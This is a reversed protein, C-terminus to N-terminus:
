WIQEHNITADIASKSRKNPTASATSLLWQMATLGHVAVSGTKTSSYRNTLRLYEAVSVSVAVAAPKNRKVIHVTGHKLCEEITASGRRKLDSAALVNMKKMAVGHTSIMNAIISIKTSDAIFIYMATPQALKTQGVIEVIHLHFTPCIFGAWSPKNQLGFSLARRSMQHVL